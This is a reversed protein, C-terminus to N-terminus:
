QSNKHIKSVLGNGPREQAFIKECDTAQSKMKKVNDKSSCFNKFDLRVNKKKKSVEHKRHQLFDKDLKTDCCNQRINEELLETTRAKANLETIGKLDNKHLTLNCDGEGRKQM